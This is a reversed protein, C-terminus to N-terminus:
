RADDTSHLSNYLFGVCSFYQDYQLTTECYLNVDLLSLVICSYIM